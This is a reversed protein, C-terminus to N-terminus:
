PQEGSQKEVLQTSISFAEMGTRRNQTVPSTFTTQNFFESAEILGILRSAADSEGEIKLNKQDMDLNSLWTDDPLVRAIESLIPLKEVNETNNSLLGRLSDVRSQYSSRLLAVKNAVQRAKSVQERLTERTEYLQMPPIALAAVLLLLALISLVANLGSFMPRREPGHDRPLLNYGLSGQGDESCVDMAAPHGGLQKVVRLLQDLRSRPVLALALQLEGQQADQDLVQYDFYVDAPKFPTQRDMEFRLVQQLNERAAAPLTIPLVAIWDYPLLIRHEPQQKDLQRIRDLLQQDIDADSELSCQGLVESADQQQYRLVLQGEQVEFLLSSARASDPGWARPRLAVLEGWWWSLFNGIVGQTQNNGVTRLSHQISNM